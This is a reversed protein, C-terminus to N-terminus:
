VIEKLANEAERYYVEKFSSELLDNIFVKISNSFHIKGKIYTGYKKYLVDEM